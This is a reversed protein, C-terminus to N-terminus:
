WEARVDREALRSASHPQHTRRTVPPIEHLRVTRRGHQALAARHKAARRLTLDAVTDTLHDVSREAHRIDVLLRGSIEEHVAMRSADLPRHTTARDQRDWIEKCPGFDPSTIRASNPSV